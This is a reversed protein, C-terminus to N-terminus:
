KAQEKEFAAKKKKYLTRLFAATNDNWKDMTLGTERELTKITVGVYGYAAIVTSKTAEDMLKLEPTAEAPTVAPATKVPATRSTSTVPPRAPAEKPDAYKTGDWRGEYVASGFGLQKCAVSIADTTAMKLAEDNLHFGNKDVVGLMSGGVGTSFGPWGAIYMRIEVFQVTEHMATGAMLDDPVLCNDTFTWEKIIEYWWGKGCPGFQNTLEKVRWQPNIDSKGRLPGGTIEKLFTPPVKEVANWMTLHDTVEDVTETATKAM